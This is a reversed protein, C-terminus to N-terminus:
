VDLVGETEAFLREAEKAGLAELQQQLVNLVIGEVTPWRYIAALSVDIELTRQIEFRLRVALLSHGGLEFFNDHIGIQKLNLVDSWINALVEETPTRPAVYSDKLELSRGKPAPLAKRDVKGNQTLPFLDTFVFASPLMYAPLREKLFERLEGAQAAASAPGVYAVLRRDSPVDERAVVVAETTAPHLKLVSEIEGLEIRFGRIKVQQDVRGRYEIVGDARFRALDGTRYLTSCDLEPFPNAVFVDTTSEPDNLYGMGVCAGGLCLEGITGTPVLDLHRDLIVARANPIPRGIPIPNTYEAPVEHFVAGISCETPGYANTIAVHPFMAKFKCVADAALAEGGILIRRLRGFAPWAEPHFRLHEVLLEFVSPVFDTCTIGQLGMLGPILEPNTVQCTPLIVSRGGCTLPWFYQWVSSDFFAPSTALVSDEAATGFLETMSSFRNIIGRHKNIAGKPLGTSGSTFICYIPDDPSVNVGPNAGDGGDSWEDFILAERNIAVLDAAADSNRFLVIRSGLKELIPGIRQKPWGPDLPVFAAGSKMVALEAILFEASTNMLIPVFHGTSIGRTRLQSAVRNAVENVQRYTLHPGESVVAVRHPTREVQAEFLQHVCKDRPYDMETRNWEVLLKHRESSSLLPLEGISRGPEAMARLINLFTQRYSALDTESHLASNAILDIRLPNGDSRDYVSISFDEVPGLSLNHAIARNGAFSFDYNFPMVNVCLGFLSRGDVNAGIDRRIDALQYRQHKLARRTQRSTQEILEPVTMGPRVTLRLPVVNSVMGPINRSVDGRSAVPLGIVLDETGKLRHLIIAAAAIMAPAISSGKRRAISRLRDATSPQLHITECLSGRPKSPPRDSLTLGGPEPRAALFDIWYQQDRRFQGSARYAVDDELLVALPGFLPEHSSGGSCLQTYVKALRRAVLWMGFGDMVIHNYRAYWFFRARSTKILAYGFLPGRAPDIALELDARMWAEASARPDPEASLDLIPMSWACAAAVVQRPEGRHEIFQLRLAETESVVQRLAQEFLQPNVPGDIEVYEGFNYAASSPNIKHTLWIESQPASLSFGPADRNLILAYEFPNVRSV